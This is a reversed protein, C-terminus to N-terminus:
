RYNTDITRKHTETPKAAELFISCKHAISTNFNGKAIDQRNLTEGYEGDGISDGGASSNRGQYRTYATYGHM